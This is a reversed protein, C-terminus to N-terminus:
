NPFTVPRNRLANLHLAMSYTDLIRGNWVDAQIHHGEIVFGFKQYLSVAKINDVVVSLRIVNVQLNKAWTIAYNMLTSGVGHSQYNDQVVIGFNATNFFGYSKIGLYSLGVIEKSKNQAIFFLSFSGSVKYGYSNMALKRLILLYMKINSKSDHVHFTPDHYFKRTDNSLSSLMTSLAKLDFLSLFRVAVIEKKGTNQQNLAM